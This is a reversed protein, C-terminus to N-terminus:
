PLQELDMKALSIGHDEFGNALAYGSLKQGKHDLELVILGFNFEQPLLTHAELTVFQNDEMRGRLKMRYKQGHNSTGYLDGSLRQGFQKLDIQIDAEQWIESLEPLMRETLKGNWRGQLKRKRSQMLSIIDERYAAIIAALLTAGAGIIAGLVADSM